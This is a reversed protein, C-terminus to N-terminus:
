HLVVEDSVHINAYDMVSRGAAALREATRPDESAVVMDFSEHAAYGPMLDSRRLGAVVHAMLAERQDGSLRGALGPEASLWVHAGSEDYDELGAVGAVRGGHELDIVAVGPEGDELVGEGIALTPELVVRGGRSVRSNNIFNPNPDVLAVVPPAAEPGLDIMLSM